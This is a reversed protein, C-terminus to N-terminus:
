WRRNRRQGFLALIFFGIGLVIELGLETGLVKIALGGLIAVVLLIILNRQARSQARQVRGQAEDIVVASRSKRRVISRKNRSKRKNNRLMEDYKTYQRGFNDRRVAEAAIPDLDKFKNQLERQRQENSPRRSQRIKPHAKSEEEQIKVAGSEQTQPKAVANAKLEARPQEEISLEPQEAPKKKPISPQRDKLPVGTIELKRHFKKNLKSKAGPVADIELKNYREENKGM